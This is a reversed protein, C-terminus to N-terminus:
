EQLELGVLQLHERLGSMHLRRVQQLNKQDVRKNKKQNQNQHNQHPQNHNIKKLKVSSVDQLKDAREYDGEDALKDVQRSQITKSLGKRRKGGPITNEPAENLPSFQAIVTDVLSFEEKPEEKKEPLGKHKTAAFDHAQKTTMEKAAKAVEPSPSKMKGDQAARVM